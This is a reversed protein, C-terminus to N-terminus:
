MGIGSFTKIDSNHYYIIMKDTAKIPRLIVINENIMIVKPALIYRGGFATETVSRCKVM